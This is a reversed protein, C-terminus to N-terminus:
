MYKRVPVDWFGLLNKFTVSKGGGWGRGWRMYPFQPMSGHLWGVALQPCLRPNILLLVPDPTCSVSSFTIHATFFTVETPLLPEIWGGWSGGWHTPAM